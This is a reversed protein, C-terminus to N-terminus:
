CDFFGEQDNRNRLRGFRGCLGTSRFNHSTNVISFNNTCAKETCDIVQSVFQQWGVRVGVVELVGGEGGEGWGRGWM